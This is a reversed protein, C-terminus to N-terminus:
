FFCWWADEDRPKKLLLRDSSPTCNSLLEEVREIHWLSFTYSLVTHTHTHTHTDWLFIIHGECNKEESFTHTQQGIIHCCRAAGSRIGGATGCESWFLGWVSPLGAAGSATWWVGVVRECTSAAPAATDRGSRWVQVKVVETLHLWYGYM